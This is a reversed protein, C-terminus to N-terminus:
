KFRINPNVEPGTCIIGIPRNYLYKQWAQIIDELAQEPTLEPVHYVSYYSPKECLQFQIKIDCDIPLPSISETRGEISVIKSLDVYAGWKTKYIAEM